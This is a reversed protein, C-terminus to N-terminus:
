TIEVGKPNTLRLANAHYTSCEIIDGKKLQDIDELIKLKVKAM